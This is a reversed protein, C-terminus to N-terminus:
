HLSKKNLTDLESNCNCNINLYETYKNYNESM